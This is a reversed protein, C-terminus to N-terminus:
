EAVIKGGVDEMEVPNQVLTIEKNVAASVSSETGSQETYGEKSVSWEVNDGYTVQKTVTKSAGENSEGAITIIPDTIDENMVTITFNFKLKELQVDTTKTETVQETEEKPSYGEAEVKYKVSTEYEVTIAKDPDVDGDNFKVTAEAPTTNITLTYSEKDLTIPLSKTETVTESGSKTQYGTRSVEYNVKSGSTVTVSNKVEGNLKVVADSPTAEITLTFSEAEPKVYDEIATIVEKRSEVYAAGNKVHWKAMSDDGSNKANDLIATAYPENIGTFKSFKNSENSM